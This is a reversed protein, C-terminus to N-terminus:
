FRLMLGTYFGSFTIDTKVDASSYDIKINEQRYGVEIAPQVVPMFDFTYDIKARVDSFKSSGYSVYKVDGEVAINTSPIEVRARLYAMPIVVSAKNEYTGIAAQTASYKADIVKADLGLDLTIWATNDLINYYPIIDYQTVDLKSTGGTFTYSGWTGTPTGKAELTSYELRLNPLVPIPHKIFLWVYASTKQDKKLTDSGGVGSSPNYSADGRPTQMWAGVGMEVRTIDAYSASALAAGVALMSIMKKM